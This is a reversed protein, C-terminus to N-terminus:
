PRRGCTSASVASSPAVGSRRSRRDDRGTMNWLRPLRAALETGAALTGRRGRRGRGPRARRRAAIRRRRDPGPRAGADVPQHRRARGARDRVPEHTRGPDPRRRRRSRWTATGCCSPCHCRARRSASGRPSTPRRSATKAQVPEGARHHPRGRCRRHRRRQTDRVCVARARSSGPSISRYGAAGAAGGGAVSLRACVRCVRRLRVCTLRSMPREGPLCDCLTIQWSHPM